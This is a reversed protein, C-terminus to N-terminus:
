VIALTRILRAFSSYDKFKHNIVLAAVSQGKEKAAEREGIM